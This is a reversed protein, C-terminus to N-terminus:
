LDGRAQYSPKQNQNSKNPTEVVELLKITAVVADDWSSNPSVLHWTHIYINCVGCAVASVCTESVLM